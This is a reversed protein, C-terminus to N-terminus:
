KVVEIWSGKTRVLYDDDYMAEVQVGPLYYNGLYAANLLVTFTKTDSKHKGKNIYGGQSQQICMATNYTRKAGKKLIGAHSMAHNQASQSVIYGAHTPVILIGKGRNEFDLSGYGKTGVIADNPTGFAEDQLDSVLPIVQMYGVSQMRGAETGRLIEAITIYTKKRKKTFM